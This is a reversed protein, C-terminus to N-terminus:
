LTSSSGEMEFFPKPTTISTLTTTNPQGWWLNGRTSPGWAGEKEGEDEDGESNEENGEDGDDGDRPLVVERAIARDCNWNRRNFITIRAVDLFTFLVQKHHPYKNIGGKTGIIAMHALTSNYLKGCLFHPELTGFRGGHGLAQAIVTITGGVGIM